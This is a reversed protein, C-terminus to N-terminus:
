RLAVMFLRPFPLLVSGDPLTPYASAVAAAYRTLYAAREAEDLPQLYPRLGSGKFWEVIAQPGRALPHFYTTRWVAVQTAHAKLMAYYWEADALPNRTAAAGALKAKWPGQLATDRMLTHAPTQLNDPMQVALAGGDNLQQILHPLLAEHHPLWHLVANALIVDFRGTPQWGAVDGLEFPINPLRRRAARLMDESSDLGRLAAQPYRAALAETSNGPGCGLDVASRVSLPPLAGLLDRVARTREGEFAAYQQASWNM